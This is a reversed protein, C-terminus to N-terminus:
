LNLLHHLYDKIGYIGAYIRITGPFLIRSLMPSLSILEKSEIHDQLLRNWFQVLGVFDAM